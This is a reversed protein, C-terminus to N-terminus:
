AYMLSLKWMIFINSIEDCTCRCSSMSNIGGSLYIILVDSLSILTFNLKEGFLFLIYLFHFHSFNALSVRVLYINLSFRPAFMGFSKKILIVSFQWVKQTSRRTAPIEEYDRILTCTSHAHASGQSNLIDHILKWVTYISFKTIQRRPDRCTDVSEDGVSLM